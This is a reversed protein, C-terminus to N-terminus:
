STRTCHCGTKEEKEEERCKEWQYHSHHHHSMVLALYWWLMWWHTNWISHQRGAADFCNPQHVLSQFYWFRFLFVSCFGVVVFHIFYLLIPLMFFSVMVMTWVVCTDDVWMCKPWPPHHHHHKPQQQQHHHCHHRNCHHCVARGGGFIRIEFTIKIFTARFKSQWSPTLLTVKNNAKLYNALWITM